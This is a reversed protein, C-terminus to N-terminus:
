KGSFASALGCQACPNDNDLVLGVQPVGDGFIEHALPKSTVDTPSAAAIRASDGLVLREM